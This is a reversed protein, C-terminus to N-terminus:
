GSGRLKEDIVKLVSSRSKNAKEEVALAKLAAKSLKDTQVNKVVVNTPRNLYDEVMIGLDEKAEVKPVPAQGEVREVQPVSYMKLWTEALADPVVEGKKYEGIDVLAKYM